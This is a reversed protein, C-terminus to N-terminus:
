GGDVPQAVALLAVLDDLTDVPRGAVNLEVEVGYELEIADVLRLLGLSDVGLAVLSGGALVDAASVEGATAEAVLEAIRERRESDTM